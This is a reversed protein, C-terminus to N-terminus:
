PQNAPHPLRNSLPTSTTPLFTKEILTCNTINQWREVEVGHINLSTSICHGVLTSEDETM